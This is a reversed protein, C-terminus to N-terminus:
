KQLNQKAAEDTKKTMFSSSVESESEYGKKTEGGDMGPLVFNVLDFFTITLGPAIGHVAIALKAPITLTLTRSGRRLAEIIKRAARDADLSLVPLSDLVKFWAYEKEPRGKVDIHRPSGTRMLGPYVTTVKINYKKLEAALGESYGSMAYKSTNYPLLHPFSVKGGISIINVIRGAHNKMMDPLVENIAHFPGWFHVKMASEYDEEKMSEMPGTQIIGANNILIDVRGWRERIKRIMDKVQRKDTIDCLIALHEGYGTSLEGSAQQLTEESQSCIVVKGGEECLKRALILGLGRSGGTILIVKDRFEIRNVADSAVKVALVAGTTWALKRAMRRALSSKKKM